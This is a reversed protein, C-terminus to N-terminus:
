YGLKKLAARISAVSKYKAKVSKGERDGEFGGDLKDSLGKYFKLKDQSISLNPNDYIYTGYLTGYIGAGRHVQPWSVLIVVERKKDKDANAFFVTEIKPDAGEQYFTDILVQKYGTSTIPVLLYGIINTVDDTTKPVFYIIVKRTTDWEKTEIVPHPFEELNTIRKVFNLATEKDQRDFTQGVCFTTSFFSILIVFHKMFAQM